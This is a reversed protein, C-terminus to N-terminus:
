IRNSISTKLTEQLQLSLGSWWCTWINHKCTLTFAHVLAQHACCPLFSMFNWKRKCTENPFDPKVTSLLPFYLSKSKWRSTVEYQVHPLRCLWRLKRHSELIVASTTNTWIIKKGWHQSSISTTFNSKWTYFSYLYGVAVKLQVNWPIEHITVYIYNVVKQAM